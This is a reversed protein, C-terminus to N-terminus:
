STSCCLLEPLHCHSLTQLLSCGWGGICHGHESNSSRLCSQHHLLHHCCLHPLCFCVALCLWQSLWFYPVLRSRNNKSEKDYCHWRLFSSRHAQCKHGHGIALPVSVDGNHGKFFSHSPNSFPPPADSERPVWMRGVWTTKSLGKFSWMRTTPWRSSRMDTPYNPLLSKRFWRCPWQSNATKSHLCSPQM